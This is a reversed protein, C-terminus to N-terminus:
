QPFSELDCLVLLNQGLERVLQLINDAEPTYYRLGVMPVLMLWPGDIPMLPQSEWSNMLELGGPTRLLADSSQSRFDLVTKQLAIWADGAGELAGSGIVLPGKADEISFIFGGKVRGVRVTANQIAPWSAWSAGSGSFLQAWFAPPESTKLDKAQYGDCRPAVPAPLYSLLNAVGGPTATRQISM